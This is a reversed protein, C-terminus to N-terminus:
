NVMFFSVNLSGLNIFRWSRTRDVADLGEIWVARLAGFISRDLAATRRQELILKAFLSGEPESGNPLSALTLLRM